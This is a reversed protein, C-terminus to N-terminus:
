SACCRFLSPSLPFFDVGSMLHTVEMLAIALCFTMTLHQILNLAILLTRQIFPLDPLPGVIKQILIILVANMYGWVGRVFMGELSTDTLSLMGGGVSPLLGFLDIDTVTQEVSNNVWTSNAYDDASIFLLPNVVGFHM